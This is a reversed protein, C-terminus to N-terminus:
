SSEQKKDQILEYINNTIFDLIVAGSIKLINGLM